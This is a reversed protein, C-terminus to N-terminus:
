IAKEPNYNINQIILVPIYSYTHNSSNGIEYSYTHVYSINMIPELIIDNDMNLIAEKEDIVNSMYLTIFMLCTYWIIPILLIVHIIDEIDHPFVMLCYWTLINIFIFWQVPTFEYTNM